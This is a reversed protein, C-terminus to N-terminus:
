GDARDGRDAAALADYATRQLWSPANDEDKAIALLAARLRGNEAQLEDVPRREEGALRGVVHSGDADCRTVAFGHPNGDGCAVFVEGEALEYERGGWGFASPGVEHITVTAHNALLDGVRIEDNQVEAFVMTPRGDSPTDSSTPIGPRGGHATCNRGERECDDCGDSPTDSSPVPGCRKHEPYGRVTCPLVDCRTYGKAARCVWTEGSPSPDRTM